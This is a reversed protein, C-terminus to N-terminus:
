YNSEEAGPAGVDAGAKFGIRAEFKTGGWVKVILDHILLLPDNQDWGLSNSQLYRKSYDLCSM